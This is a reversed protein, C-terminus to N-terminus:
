MKFQFLLNCVQSYLRYFVCVQKVNSEETTRCADLVGFTKGLYYPMRREAFVPGRPISANASKSACFVKKSFHTNLIIPCSFGEVSLSQRCCTFNMLNLNLAFRTYCSNSRKKHQNKIFPVVPNSYKLIAHFLCRYLQLAFIFLKINHNDQYCKFVTLNHILHFLSNCLHLPTPAALELVKQIDFESLTGAVEVPRNAAYWGACLVLEFVNVEELVLSSRLPHM